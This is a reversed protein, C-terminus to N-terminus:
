EHRQEMRDLREALLAAEQALRRSQESLRSIVVTFVLVLLLLFIFAFFFVVTLYQFNFLLSLRVIIFPFLGVILGFGSVALWLLAYREKLHGRRVLELVVLLLSLSLLLLGVRHLAYFGQQGIGNTGM